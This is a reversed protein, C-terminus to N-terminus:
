SSCHKGRGCERRRGMVEPGAGQSLHTGAPPPCAPCKDKPGLVDRPCRFHPKWLQLLLWTLNAWETLRHQTSIPQGQCTSVLPSPTVEPASCLAQSPVAPANELRPVATAHCSRGHAHRLEICYTSYFGFHSMIEPTLRTGNGLPVKTSLM